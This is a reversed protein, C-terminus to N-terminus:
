CGMSGTFGPMRATVSEDAFRQVSLHQQASQALWRCWTFDVPM